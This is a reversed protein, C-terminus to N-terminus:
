DKGDLFLLDFLFFVLSADGHEMSNQILNFATRGDPGVGCLEGDLYANRAPLTAIDGAVSPYKPDL